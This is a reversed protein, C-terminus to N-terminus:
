TTTTGNGKGKKKRWKKKKKMNARKSSLAQAIGMKLNANKQEITIERLKLENVIRDESTIGSGSEDRGVGVVEKEYEVLQRFFGENPHVLQRCGKAHVYAECLDMGCYRMLYAIVLSSSRSVGMQCHVLCCDAAHIFDCVQEFHEAISVHAFDRIQLHMYSIGTASRERLDSLFALKQPDEDMEDTGNDNENEDGDGDGLM